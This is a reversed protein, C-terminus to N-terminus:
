VKRLKSAAELAEQTSNYIKTLKAIHSMQPKKAETEDMVIFIKSDKQESIIEELAYIASLDIFPVKLCDIIIFKASNTAQIGEIIKATSGFFFAGNISFVRTDDLGLVGQKAHNDLVIGSQKTISYILFICSIVVGVLVAVILDLFVTLFFVSIMVILDAKPATNLRKLMRYDLIDIGVKILIASLVPIPIFSVIPAFVLVVLLLFVSHTVGSLKNTGGSKINVVTRMTAGAGPIAGFFGVFANGIGQGILEQNSNHKTKTISDAVLSTLLSDISGLVALMLAYITIIGLKSFDFNPVVFDPFGVPITGIIAVDFGFVYCLPTLVILTFLPAPLYRTLSKPLFYLMLLAVLGIFFSIPSFNLFTTPFKLLADISNGASLGGLIPNIQLLIIIIGVGSMFGSIVPYPIFKVFKGLRFIGFCIQFIGSLVFIAMVVSIDDKFMLVISACVVSMPGTPGSVQMKTGGFIAAFFGLVIAGWLGAAAGLGSVIGFALALPLAVIGATIGGLINSTINSKM